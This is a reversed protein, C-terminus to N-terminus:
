QQEDRDGGDFVDGGKDVRDKSLVKTMVEMSFAEMVESSMTSPATAHPPDVFLSESSLWASSCDYEDPVPAAQLLSASQELVVNQSLRVYPGHLHRAFRATPTYQPSARSHLDPTQV